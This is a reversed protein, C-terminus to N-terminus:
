AKLILLDKTIENYHSLCANMNITHGATRCPTYTHTVTRYPNLRLSQTGSTGSMGLIAAWGSSLLLQQWYM